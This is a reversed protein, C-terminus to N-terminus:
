VTEKIRRAVTEPDQSCADSYAYASQYGLWEAVDELAHALEVNDHHSDAGGVQLLDDETANAWPIEHGRAYGYELKVGRLLAVAAEPSLYTHGTLKDLVSWYTEGGPVNLVLAGNHLKANLMPALRAQNKEDESLGLKALKSSM